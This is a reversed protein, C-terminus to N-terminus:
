YYKSTMEISVWSVFMEKGFPTILITLTASFLLVVVTRKTLMKYSKLWYQVMFIVSQKKLGNQCLRETHCLILIECQWQWFLLLMLNQQQERIPISKTCLAPLRQLM